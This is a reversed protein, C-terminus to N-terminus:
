RKKKTLLRQARQEFLEFQRRNTVRNRINNLREYVELEAESPAFRGVFIPPM